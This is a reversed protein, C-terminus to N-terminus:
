RTNDYKCRARHIRQLRNSVRPQLRNRDGGCPIVGRQRAPDLQSGAHRHSSMAHRAAVLPASEAQTDITLPLRRHGYYNGRNDTAELKHMRSYFGEKFGEQKFPSRAYSSFCAESVYQDALCTEKMAVARAAASSRCLYYACHLEGADDEHMGLM